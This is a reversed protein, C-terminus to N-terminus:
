KAEMERSKISRTFNGRTLTSANWRTCTLIATPYKVLLFSSLFDYNVAIGGLWMIREAPILLGVLLLLLIGSLSIWTRFILTEQHGVKVM